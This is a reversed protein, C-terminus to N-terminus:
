VAKNEIFVFHMFQTIVTVLLYERSIEICTIHYNKPAYLRFNITNELFIAECNVPCTICSKFSMSGKQSLFILKYIKKIKQCFSTLWWKYGFKRLFEGIIPRHYSFSTYFKLNFPKARKQSFLDIIWYIPWRPLFM